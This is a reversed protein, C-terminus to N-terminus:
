AIEEAPELRETAQVQQMNMWSTNHFVIEFASADLPHVSCAACEEAPEVTWHDSVQQVNEAAPTTFVSFTQPHMLLTAQVYLDTSKFRETAQAQQTNRWRTTAFRFIAASADLIHGSRVAREGAAEVPETAQAQQM